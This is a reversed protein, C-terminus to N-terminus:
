SALPRAKNVCFGPTFPKIRPVMDCGFGILITDWWSTSAPKAGHLCAMIEKTFRLRFRTTLNQLDPGKRSLRQKDSRLWTEYPIQKKKM